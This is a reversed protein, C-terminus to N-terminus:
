SVPHTAGTLAHHITRAGKRLARKRAFVTQNASEVLIKDVQMSVVRYGFDHLKKMEAATLWLQLQGLTRFGCGAHMGHPVLRFVDRGFEQMIDPPMPPGDEDVWRASFGPKFPGRGDKDQIRFITASM